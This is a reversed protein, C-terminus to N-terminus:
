QCLYQLGDEGKFRTGPRCVFGNRTAYDQYYSGPTGSYGYGGYAGYAAAAGAVGLGVGVGGVGPRWGGVRWGAGHWGRGGHFGAVPNGGVRHFSRAAAETSVTATALAAVAALVMVTKSLM